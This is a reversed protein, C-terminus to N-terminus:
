SRSKDCARARVYVEDLVKPIEEAKLDASYLPLDKADFLKVVAGYGALIRGAEVAVKWSYSVRRLSGCLILFKPRHTSMRTTLANLTANVANCCDDYAKEKKEKTTFELTGTPCCSTYITRGLQAARIEAVSPERSTIAGDPDVGVWKDRSITLGAKDAHNVAGPM